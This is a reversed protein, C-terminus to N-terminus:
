KQFYVKELERKVTLANQRRKEYNQNNSFYLFKM